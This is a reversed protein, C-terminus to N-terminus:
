VPGGREGRRRRLPWLPAGALCDGPDRLGGGGQLGVQDRGRGGGARRDAARRGGGRGPQDAWRYDGRRLGEPWPRLGHRLHRQDQACDGRGGAGGARRRARLRPHGDARAAGGDTARRHPQDRLRAAGQRAADSQLLAVAGGGVAGSRRRDVFGAAARNGRRTTPGTGRYLPAAPLPRDGVAAASWRASRDLRRDHHHDVDPGVRQPGPAAGAAAGARRRADDGGGRRGGGDGAALGAALLHGGAVRRADPVRGAGSQDRRDRRLDDRLRARDARLDGGAGAGDRDVAAGSQA